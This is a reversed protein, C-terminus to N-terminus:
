EVVWITLGKARRVLEEAVDGRILAQLWSLSQRGLVITTCGCNRALQLLEQVTNRKDRPDLLKTELIGARLGANRLITSAQDLLGRAKQQASSIWQQQSIKLDKDLRLEEAANESGGFELLEPPVSLLPHVLCVHFGRRRGVLRGVYEIARKSVPADEVVIMLRTDNHKGSHRKRDKDISKKM